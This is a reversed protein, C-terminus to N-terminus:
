TSSLKFHKICTLLLMHGFHHGFKLHGVGSPLVFKASCSYNVRWTWWSSPYSAHASFGPLWWALQLVSSFVEIDKSFAHNFGNLALDPFVLHRETCLQYMICCGSPFCWISSCESYYTHVIWFAWWLYTCELTGHKYNKSSYMVEWSIDGEVLM